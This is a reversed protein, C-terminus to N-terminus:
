STKKKEAKFTGNPQVFNVANIAGSADRLFQLSFGSAAKLAFSDKGTPVLEYEPQGPVFLYLTDSRTYLKAETTGVIFTGTYQEAEGKAIPQEKETKKFLLQINPAEFGVMNLSEILGNIGTNFQIRLGSNESPDFRYDDLLHPSFVDYHYHRLWILKSPTYAFLSDHRTFVEFNGYGQNRYIGEYDKLPHSPKTNPIQSPTKTKEQAESEKKAKQYSNRLDDSWNFYPKGLLRDAILNRIISPVTSGDQNSLVIIGISDTPFFCTSASFGDINGGHEVRYHGKFSSLMWGFGYNAFYLDPREKTPFGDSIIAQSSIAEKSFISSLIEKGEFKGGNIWTIVWNSMDMVNSNISGAPGAANIDYYPLGTILSDKKLGYGKAADGTKQMDHISFESSNMRLPQLFRERINEEWTKGTIKEAVAGLAVFMFNNYQWMRRLPYTPEQYQIRQFLSDRSATPFLYWSYDHRPIGTRHSMMDRLTVSNTLEDSYFNLSPLYQHVPKDIDLKGEKQLLGILSATFAKTCSGIAFLTQTTVPLKNELDRYGFGKAYIIKNKEVVAVAFGPAKWQQLVRQFATDLASIRKDNVTENKQALSFLPLLLLFFIKKM